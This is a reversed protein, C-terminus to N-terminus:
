RLIHLTLQPRKAIAEKAIGIETIYDLSYCHASVQGKSGLFAFNCQSDKENPARDWYM